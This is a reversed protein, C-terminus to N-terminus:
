LSAGDFENIKLDNLNIDDVCNLNIAYMYNGTGDHGYGYSEIGCTNCFLHDVHHKNFHYTTTADEGSLLRFQEPAAFTLRWGLRKCRSCNCTMAETVDADFEYQVAGCQCSGKHTKM